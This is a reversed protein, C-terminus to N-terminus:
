YSLGAHLSDDIPVVLVTLERHRLWVTVAEELARLTDVFVAAAGFGQAVKLWDVSGFDVASHAIGRMDQAVKIISLSGDRVIVILPNSGWRRATELEQAMMGMGGDGVVCVVPRAPFQRAAAIASPVGFGMSSLGNSVLFGLPDTAEWAQLAVAKHAGVDCTFLTEGPLSDQLARISHYASLGRSTCSKEPVMANRVENRITRLESATWAMSLTLGDGVEALLASVDGFIEVPCYSGFGTAANSISYVPAEHHWNQGSEVADFGLGLIMDSSELAEVIRTDAAAGTVAGFYTARGEAVMGKGQPSVCYPLGTSDLFGQVAPADATRTLAHGVVVIPRKAQALARRIESLRSSDQVARTLSSSRCPSAVAKQVAVDGQLTAFVPGFPPLTSTHLAGRLQRAAGVATLDIAVKCIPSMMERLALNQKNSWAERDSATRAAMALLPARDLFATAIGLVLNCAGPGLTSLCVGPVGTLRGLTQAMFAAASEHGTLVVELGAAIQADILDVVEGGSHGFVYRVGADLITDSIVEANTPDCTRQESTSENM